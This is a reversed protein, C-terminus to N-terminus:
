WFLIYSILLGIFFGLVVGLQTTPRTQVVGDVIWPNPALRDVKILFRELYKM